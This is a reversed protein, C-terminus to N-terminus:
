PRPPSPPPPAEGADGPGRLRVVLAFVWGVAAAVVVVGIGGRGDFRIGLKAAAVGFLVLAGAGVVPALSAVVEPPRTSPVVARTWGFGVASLTALIVAAWGLGWGLSPPSTEGEVSGWAPLLAVDPGRVVAAGGPPLIRAGRAVAEAYQAPGSSLLVVVPPNSPLVRAVDDVLHQTERASRGGPAPTLRGALLDDLRGPFV